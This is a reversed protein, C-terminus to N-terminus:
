YRSYSFSDLEIVPFTQYKCPVPPPTTGTVTNTYLDAQVGICFYSYYNFYPFIYRKCAKCALGTKM